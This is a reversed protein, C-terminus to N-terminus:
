LFENQSIIFKDLFEYRSLFFVPKGSFEMRFRDQGWLTFTHTRLNRWSLLFRLFILYCKLVNEMGGCHISFKEVIYPFYVYASNVDM